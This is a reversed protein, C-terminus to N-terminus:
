PTTPPPASPAPGLGTGSRAARPMAMAVLPGLLGGAMVGVSPHIVLAVALGTVAGVVAATLTRRDVILAVALGAMAAPFVVDMGLVRPEPMLGGGLHGLATALLWPIVPMAAAVAYTGVDLRGLRRLAPYALAYTEDALVHAAAARVRRPASAFLPALSASYLLHRANLLATLLVIGLWPVGQAVLGIAAFQSAGALVIVSMAMAELFSFGGERAALGYVVGFAFASFSIALGDTVVRRRVLRVDEAVTM